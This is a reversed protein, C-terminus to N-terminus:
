KKVAMEGALRGAEEVELVYGVQFGQGHKVDLGSSQLLVRNDETIEWLDVVRSCLRAGRVIFGEVM